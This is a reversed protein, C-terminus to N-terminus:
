EDDGSSDDDSNDRDRDVDRLLTRFNDIQYLDLQDVDFDTAAAAGGFGASGHEQAHRQEGAHARAHGSVSHGREAASAQVLSLALVATTLITRIM